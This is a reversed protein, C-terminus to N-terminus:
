HEALVWKVWKVRGRESARRRGSMGKGGARLEWAWGAQQDEALVWMVWRERQSARRWGLMGKGVTQLDWTM